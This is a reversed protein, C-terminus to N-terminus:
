TYCMTCRVLYSAFFNLMVLPFGQKCLVCQLMDHNISLFFQAIDFAMM